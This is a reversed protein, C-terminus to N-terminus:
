GDNDYSDKGDLGIDNKIHAWKPDPHTIVATPPRNCAYSKGVVFTLLILVLAKTLSYRSM